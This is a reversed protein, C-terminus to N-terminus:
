TRGEMVVGSRILGDIEEETFRMLAMAERSHQGLEPAAKQDPAGPEFAWGPTRVEGAIAHHASVEVRDARYGASTAVDAYTAIPTAMVDRALFLDTWHKATQRRFIPDLVEHLSTRNAVRDANSAFRPDHLLQQTELVECFARWRASQYAAVMIWGDQTPFTENPAAYSAESGSPSPLDGNTLWASLNLQQLMMMGGFLDIDLFSGGLGADRRRLAALISIVAFMAGTMDALPIPVKGPGDAGLITSMMGSAAQVIGDVGPRLRWDSDQGYASIACYVLNPKIEKLADWGLGLRDAVGPRFNQVVVDAGAVMRALVIPADKHKLDFALGLKNRNSSLLVFSEGNISPPGMHRALEGQPPEVKIVTAGLDALWMSCVPAAILQGFDLVVLGKLTDRVLQAGGM